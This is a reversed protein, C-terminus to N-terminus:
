LLDSAVTVTAMGFNIPELEENLRKWIPEIHACAVCWVAYFLILYPQKKSLHVISNQYSRLCLPTLSYPSM